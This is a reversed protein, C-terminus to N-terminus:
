SALTKLQQSFCAAAHCLNVVCTCLLSRLMKSYRPRRDQLQMLTTKSASRPGGTLGFGQRKACQPAHAIGSVCDPWNGHPAFMWLVLMPQQHFVHNVMGTSPMTAYAYSATLVVLVASLSDDRVRGVLGCINPAQSCTRICPKYGLRGGEFLVRRSKRILQGTMHDKSGSTPSVAEAFLVQVPLACKSFWLQGSTCRLMQADSSLDAELTSRTLRCTGEVTPLLMSRHPRCTCPGDLRIEPLGFRAM